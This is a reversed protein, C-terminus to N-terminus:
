RGEGLRMLWAEAEEKLEWLKQETLIKEVVGEREGMAKATLDLFKARVLNSYGFTYLMYANEEVEERTVSGLRQGRKLRYDMLLLDKGMAKLGEITETKAASGSEKEWYPGRTVRLIKELAESVAWKLLPEVMVERLVSDEALRKHFLREAEGLDGAADRFVEGAVRLVIDAM